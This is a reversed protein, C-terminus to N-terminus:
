RSEPRLRHRNLRSRQRSAHLSNVEDLAVLACDHIHDLTIDYGPEGFLHGECEWIISVLCFYASM